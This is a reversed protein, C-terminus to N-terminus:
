LTSILAQWRAPNSILVTMSPMQHAARMRMYRRFYRFLIKVQQDSIKINTITSWPINNKGFVGWFRGAGPPIKAEDVKTIYKSTYSMVGRWSRIVEAEVGREMHRFDGSGVITYWAKAAWILFEFLSQGWMFMHFHPAVEGKRDGSKRPKYEIRWIGGLNRRSMRKAMCDIDRKWKEPDDPFHDPYTLTVFLPKKDQCTQAIKRQLRRRSPKSMVSVAGRLGGGGHALNYPGSRRATILGGQAWLDVGSQKEGRKPSIHATTLHRGVAVPQSALVAGRTDGPVGARDTRAAKGIGPPGITNSQDPLPGVATPSNFNNDQTSSYFFTM